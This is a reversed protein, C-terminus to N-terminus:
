FRNFNISEVTLSSLLSIKLNEFCLFMSIFFYSFTPRYSQIEFQFGHLKVIQLFGVNEIFDYGGKCIVIIYKVM